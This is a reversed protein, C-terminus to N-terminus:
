YDSVRSKMIYDLLTKTDITSWDNLMYCIACACYSFRMDSESDVMQVSFSDSCLCVSVYIPVRDLVPSQM